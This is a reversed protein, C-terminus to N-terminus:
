LFLAVHQFLEDCSRQRPYSPVGFQRYEAPQYLGRASPGPHLPPCRNRPPRAWLLESLAPQRTTASQSVPQLRTHFDASLRWCRKLHASWVSLGDSASRGTVLRDRRALGLELDIFGPFAAHVVGNTVM